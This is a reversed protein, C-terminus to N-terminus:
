GILLLLLVYYDENVKVIELGLRALKLVLMVGFLAEKIM